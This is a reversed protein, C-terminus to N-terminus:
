GLVMRIFMWVGLFLIVPISIVLLVIFGVARNIKSSDDPPLVRGPEGSGDFLDNLSGDESPAPPEIPQSFPNPSEDVM